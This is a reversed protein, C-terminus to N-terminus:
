DYGQRPLASMDADLQPNPLKGALNREFMARTMQHGDRMMYKRFAAVIREVDSREDALGVALDLLDRGKGRPYLARLKTALLEDLVFTTIAATGSYWPSAVSFPRRAFGFTSCHERSNIEVKLRQRMPQAGESMFRYGFTMRGWTQRGQAQGLWPDLLSRLGHM